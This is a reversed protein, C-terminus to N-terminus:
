GGAFFFHKAPRWPRDEWHVNWMPDRTRAMEELLADHMRDRAEATEPSDILNTLEYPDAELDYFEDRDFLNVALKYRENSVCRIPYLGGREQEGPENLNYSVFVHERVAATPDALVPAQSVGHLSEPIEEGALDLMTPLIDLHSLLAQSVAGGPVGPGRVIFPINTSEEYMQPGKDHLGHSGLQDGHDSTYIIMTDDGHLADVAATVRGIESDIYSNCGFFKLRKAVLQEWTPNDHYAAIEQAQMQQLDSKGDMPPCYNPRGPIDGPQFKEWYEVPAMWPDHPEDYSVVLVFPNSPECPSPEGTAQGSGAQGSSASTTSAASRKGSPDDDVRGLFDLARDTVRHGYVHEIGFGAQRLDAPTTQQNYLARIDDPLEALCNAQEYWWDPEFGGGPVGSGAYDTGDLHWKGTLASRYGLKRFIDGMLPVRRHPAMHNAWAGNCQPYQGSFLAGRAPGCIPSATYAREFRVGEGALRDLNPTDCVPQGYAGVMWKCQTDTLIIVFNM